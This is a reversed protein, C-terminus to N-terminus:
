KTGAHRAILARADDQLKVAPVVECPVVAGIAASADCLLALRPRAGRDDPM